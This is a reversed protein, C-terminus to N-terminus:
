PKPAPFKHHKAGPAYGRDTVVDPKPVWVGRHKQVEFFRHCAYCSAIGGGPAPHIAVYARRGVVDCLWGGRTCIRFKKYGDIVRYPRPRTHSVLYGDETLDVRQKCSPCRRRGIIRPPPVMLVSDGFTGRDITGVM